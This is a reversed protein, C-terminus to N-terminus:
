REPYHQARDALVRLDAILRDMERASVPQTKGVALNATVKALATLAKENASLLAEIKSRGQLALTYRERLSKAEASQGNGQSEMVAVKARLAAPELARVSQATVRLTQLNRIGNEYVRNGTDAYRHFTIEESSFRSALVEDFDQKKAVFSDLQLAANKQQLSILQQRLEAHPHDTITEQPPPASPTRQANASSDVALMQRSRRYALFAPISFFIVPFAFALLTLMAAALGGRLLMFLASFAGVFGIGAALWLCVLAVYGMGIGATRRLLGQFM